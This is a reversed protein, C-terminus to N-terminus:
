AVAGMSNAIAQKLFEYDPNELFPDSEALAEAEARAMEVIELDSELRAVRFGAMGSQRTGMMEGEGRIELDLESLTFGDSHEALAQLRKNNKPGMLFCLAPHEGRGVRGRLQHLQSIGYRDADEIVMVTANPVDIGVEIV